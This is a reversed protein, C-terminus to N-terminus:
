ESMMNSVLNEVQTKADESALFFSIKNLTRTEGQLQEMVLDDTNFSILSPVYKLMEETPLDTELNSSIDEILDNIKGVNKINLVQTATAKIFERQTRMRGFDNDGYKYSYSSGDNNHRFRLLQEAKDGNIRQMGAKLNIHLDQTPDDYEMDIPVDFDVGGITDVIDVLMSTKIVVYNDIELGLLEEVEKISVDTGKKYQANIKQSAKASAQNEGIFTDRPISLIFAKQTGPNYGAVMITDTLPTSIDESVGMILVFRTEPEGLIWTGIATLTKKWDGNYKAMTVGWFAGALIVIIFLFVLLIRGIVKLVKIM